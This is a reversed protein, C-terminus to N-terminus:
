AYAGMGHETRADKQFQSHGPEPGAQAPGPSAAALYRMRLVTTLRGQRREDMASNQTRGSQGGMRKM